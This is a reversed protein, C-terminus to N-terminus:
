GMSKRSPLTSDIIGGALFRYAADQYHFPSAGWQHAASTRALEGPLELVSFGLEGLAGFYPSYAENAEAPTMMWGPAELTDGNEFRDAWDTRLVLTRDLLGQDRLKQTLRQANDSWLELHRAAGVTFVSCGKSAERGGSGWFETLRTAFTGDGFDVVGSREDVLDILMLDIEDGVADLRRFLDGALDGRVMRQQFASDLPTLQSRIRSADNGASILSQRAVYTTLRFREPLFGFTDRSVCSGWIFTRVDGDTPASEDPM